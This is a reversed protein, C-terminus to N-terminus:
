NRAALLGRIVLAVAGVMAFSLSILLGSVLAEQWAAGAHGAATIPMTQGGVGWAAALLTALWNATSGYFFLAFAWTEAGKSLKVHGWAAGLAILLIGNMLGELHAVLGMRPNVLMGSVFGTLLGLMLLVAGLMVMRRATRNESVIM